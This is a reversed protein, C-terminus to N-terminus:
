RLSSESTFLSRQSGALSGQFTVTYVLGDISVAVNGSGINSLSELASQVASASPLGASCDISGTTQGNFTLTFAGSQPASSFALTQIENRTDLNDGLTPALVSQEVGYDIVFSTATQAQVTISAGLATGSLAASVANVFNTPDVGAVPLDAANITAMTGGPIASFDLVLTGSRPTQNLTVTQQETQAPTGTADSGGAATVGLDVNMSVYDGNSDFYSLTCGSDYVAVNTIAGPDPFSYSGSSALGSAGLSECFSVGDITFAVTVSGTLSPQNYSTYDYDWSIAGSTAPQGPTGSGGTQTEALSATTQPGGEQQEGIALTAPALPRPYTVTVLSQPSDGLAGQFALTYVFGNQSVTVNGDGINSLSELASQVVSASPLEAACDISSTTQNDFMLQLSGSQPVASFTLTQVENQAAPTLNDDLTPAPVSSQVGYDIVFGKSTQTPVTVTARLSSPLAGSIAAIFNTPDVGAVPLDSADITATTGGIASFDFTLAGGQPVQSFTVTDQDSVPDLNDTLTPVQVSSQVGYDIVFGKSTQTPVTVTAGLSSPLAASIANIFNTPDVGAVPLDSADITATTGGIASDDFTLTGSEPAGNFTVTHQETEADQDGSHSSNIGIGTSWDYFDYYVTVGSSDFSLDSIAGAAAAQCSGSGSTSGVSFSGSYSQGDVTYSYNANGDISYVYGVDWSWYITGTGATQGAQTESISATTQPGGIRTESISATTPAVGVQQEATTITAVTVAVSNSTSGASLSDGDYVATITRNGPALWSADLTAVGSSNLNAYGIALNGDKFEVTGTPPTEDSPTGATVTATLTEDNGYVLSSQSATLSTSTTQLSTVAFSQAYVTSPDDSEWLRLAANYPGADAYTHSLTVHGQTPVHASGSSDITVPAAQPGNGDGWDITASYSAGWGPDSFAETLDLPSGVNITQSGIGPLTIPAENVTIGATNSGQQSLNDQVSATVNYLGEDGYIHDLILLEDGNVNLLTPSNDVTGDGYNVSATYSTAGPDLIVAADAYSSGENVTKPGFVVSISLLRREELTEM